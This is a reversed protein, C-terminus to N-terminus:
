AALAASRSTDAIQQLLADSHITTEVEASEMAKYAAAKAATQQKRHDKLARKELQPHLEHETAPLQRQGTSHKTLMKAQKGKDPELRDLFHLVEPTLPILDRGRGGRSRSGISAGSVLSFSLRENDRGETGNGLPELPAYTNKLKTTTTGVAPPGNNARIPITFTPLTGLEERQVQRIPM